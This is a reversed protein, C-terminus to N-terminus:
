IELRKWRESKLWLLSLLFCALWGLIEGVWIAALPFDLVIAAAYVYALVTTSLVLEILLTTRTDGTGAVAAFVMEAPIVIAVALSVVRLSAVSGALAAPDSTFLALPLEPAAFAIALFPLVLTASWGMARRVMAGIRRADDQGLLNSVMTTTTESFGDIPLLFLAYISYIVNAGALANEGLREVIVFFLFWRATGLLTELAVPWSVRLIVRGLVVNPRPLRFLGFRRVDGKIVAYTALFVFTVIEACLSGFAAGRIGLEPLGLKGFILVYDLAINTLALATTAGILVRTRAIGVYFASFALNLSHFFVAFAIIGLFADVAEQVDPSRLIWGTVLPSLFKIVLFLVVSTGLLLGTGHNFADGIGRENAQGARRACIIQIGDGLGFTFFSVVEYITAALAVAGLEITGYRALFITDTVDVITENAGAIIIPLSIAWITRSSIQLKM